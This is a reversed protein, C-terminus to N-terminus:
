RQTSNQKVELQTGCRTENLSACKTAKIIVPLLFLGTNKHM